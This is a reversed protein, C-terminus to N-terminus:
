HQALMVFLPSVNFRGVPSANTFAGAYEASFSRNILGINACHQAM